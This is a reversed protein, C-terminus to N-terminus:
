IKYKRLKVVGLGIALGALAGVPVFYIFYKGHTKMIMEGCMGESQCTSVAEQYTAAKFTHRIEQRALMISLAVAVVVCLTSGLCGSSYGVGMIKKINSM